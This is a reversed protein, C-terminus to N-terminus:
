RYISAPEAASGKGVGKWRSDTGAEVEGTGRHWLVVQMTGGSRDGIKVDHNTSASEYNLLRDIVTDIPVGAWFALDAPSAGFGM